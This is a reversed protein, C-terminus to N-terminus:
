RRPERHLSDSSEPMSTHLAVACSIFATCLLIGMVACCWIVLRSGHRRRRKRSSRKRPHGPPPSPPTDAVAAIIERSRCHAVFDWSSHTRVIRRRECSRNTVRQTCCGSSRMPHRRAYDARGARIAFYASAASKFDAPGSITWVPEIGTGPVVPLSSDRPHVPVIRAHHVTDCANMRPDPRHEIGTGSFSM